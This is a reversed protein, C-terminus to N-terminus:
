FPEAGPEPSVDPPVFYEAPAEQSEFASFESLEIKGDSDHDLRSWNRLLENHGTAETISIYGDGDRDLNASTNTETQEASVNFAVAIAGFVAINLLKM